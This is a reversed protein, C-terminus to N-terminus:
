GPKSVARCNVLLLNRARLHAQCGFLVFAQVRYVSVQCAICLLARGGVVNRWAVQECSTACGAVLLCERTFVRQAAFECMVSGAGDFGAGRNM